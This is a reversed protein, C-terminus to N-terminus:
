CILNMEVRSPLIKKYKSSPPRTLRILKSAMGPAPWLMSPKSGKQWAASKASYDKFKVDSPINKISFPPALRGGQLKGRKQLYWGLELIQVRIWQDPCERLFSGPFNLAFGVFLSIFPTYNFYM